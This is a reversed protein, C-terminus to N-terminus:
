IEKKTPKKKTPKKRLQLDFLKKPVVTKKSQSTVNKSQPLLSNINIFRNKYPKGADISELLLKEMNAEKHFSAILKKVGQVTTRFPVDDLGYIVVNYNYSEAM